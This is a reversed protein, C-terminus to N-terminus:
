RKMATLPNLMSVKYIPYFSLLLGIVFVIIGQNVFNGPDTSTPFIPEFGFREFAKATDGGLMIPNRNLYYVVPISALMGLVCGTLVILISEFLLLFALKSKQMGIAVLMGMEFRRENMMMLLTGFIGFCILLYLIGSIVKMSNTDSQIHQKIDPMIEEWTMVEYATGLNSRIRAATLDLAESNNVSLVYSTIMGQAGYLDQAALLPMILAQDNLQPSGFRLYGKVPYKGAATAGHYGQGIITITDGVAVKLRQALGESLLVALDDRQLYSGKVLKEKLRTIKEEKDTDIGMVMCGKTLDFSSILAFAELRPAVDTVTHDARIKRETAASATFSNDLIQEDWYGQKHVQIYGAYFSVVNKVLNEFIGQQLSSTIISLVVAFFISAMTVITRSKNRWLNKWAMTLLWM